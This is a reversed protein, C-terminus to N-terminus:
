NAKAPETKTDGTAAPTTGGAAPAAAVPDISAVKYGAKEVAAKIAAQTKKDNKKVKLIAHNGELEVSISKTDIGKLAALEKEVKSTCDGCTMGTIKVDVAQDALAAIPSLALALLAATVFSKM